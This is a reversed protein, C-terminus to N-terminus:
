SKFHFSYRGSLVSVCTNLEREETKRAIRREKSLWLGAIITKHTGEADQGKKM